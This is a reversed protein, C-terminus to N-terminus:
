KTLVATKYAQALEQTTIKQAEKEKSKAIGFIKETYQGILKDTYDTHGDIYYKGEKTSRITLSAFLEGTFYLDPTKFGKMEAYSKSYPPRIPQDLTTAHEEKLQKRNLDILAENDDIVGEIYVPLDQVFRNSRLRLEHVAGMTKSQLLFPVKM